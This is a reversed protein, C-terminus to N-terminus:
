KVPYAAQNPFMPVTLVPFHILINGLVFLDHLPQM